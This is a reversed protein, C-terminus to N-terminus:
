HNKGIFYFLLDNSVTLDFVFFVEKRLPFLFGAPLSPSIMNKTLIGVSKRDLKRAPHRYTDFFPADASGIISVGFVSLTESAAAM